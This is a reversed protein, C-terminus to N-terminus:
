EVIMETELDEIGGATTLEIEGAVRFVAEVEISNEIREEVRLAEKCFRKTIM